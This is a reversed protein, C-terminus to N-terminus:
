PNSGLEKGVSIKTIAPSLQDSWLTRPRELNRTGDPKYFLAQKTLRYPPIRMAHGTWQKECNCIEHVINFEGLQIRIDQNRIM